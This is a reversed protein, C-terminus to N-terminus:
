LIFPILAKRSKPYDDPYRTRYFRQTASAALMLNLVLHRKSGSDLFLRADKVPPESGGDSSGNGAYMAAALAVHNPSFRSPHGQKPKQQQGAGAQQQQQGKDKSRCDKKIHGMKGCKYCRKGAHPNSRGGAGGAALAPVIAGSIDEGSGSSSGAGGAGQVKMTCGVWSM